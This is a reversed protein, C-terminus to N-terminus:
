SALCEFWKWWLINRLLVALDPVEFKLAAHQLFRPDRSPEWTSENESKLLTCSVNNNGSLEVWFAESIHASSLPVVIFLSTTGSSGNARTYYAFWNNDCGINCSHELCRLNVIIVLKHYIGALDRTPQLSFICFYNSFILVPSGISESVFIVKINKLLRYIIRLLIFFVCWHCGACSLICDYRNTVLAFLQIVPNLWKIQQTHNVHGNKLSAFPEVGALWPPNESRLFM